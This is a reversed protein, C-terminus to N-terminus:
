CVLEREVRKIKSSAREILRYPTYIFPAATDHRHWSDAKLMLNLAAKGMEHHKLDITSLPPSCYVGGPYGTYGLVAVQQPIKINFKNLAQYVHLAYFDSYCIIATPFCNLKMFQEVAAEVEDYNYKCQAILDPNSDCHQESLFNLYNKYSFGRCLPRNNDIWITAIRHHGKAVLYKIGDSWAAHEDTRLVAFGTNHYDEVAPHPMVVPLGTAKIMLYDQEDGKISNAFYFIGDFDHSKLQAVGDAISMSRLFQLSCKEIIIGRKKAQEELGPLIYNWPAEVGTTESPILALFKKRSRHSEPAVFTGKRPVRIVLGDAELQTLASRLTVKGVNLERAFDLENPLKQGPLYKGQALADHLQQYIIDKKFDISM